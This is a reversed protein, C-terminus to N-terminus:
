FLRRHVYIRDGPYIPMDKSPDKAAKKWNFHVKEGNSRIIDINSKSAFDTFDGSAGIAKTASIDGPHIKVGPTKVEGTVYYYRDDAKINVTMRKYYKPVFVQRIEEALGRKTKAEATIVLNLPLAITGDERVVQEWATPLGPAELFEMKIKDGKHIEFGETIAEGPPANTLSAFSSNPNHDVGACGPFIGICALAFCLAIWRNVFSLRNM